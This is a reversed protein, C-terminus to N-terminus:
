MHFRLMAGLSNRRSSLTVPLATLWDTPGSKRESGNAIRTHWRRVWDQKREWEAPKHPKLHATVQAFNLYAQTEATCVQQYTLRNHWLKGIDWSDWELGKEELMLLGLVTYRVDDDSEMFAIRERVSKLCNRNIDIGLEQARSFEPTYGKIPFADAGEFWLLVNKWGPNGKDGVMMSHTELPKGLACGISRGLWSGYFKNRWTEGDHNAEYRRPGDPRLARIGELDSPELFPFDKM